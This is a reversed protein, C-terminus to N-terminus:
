SWSLRSCLLPLSAHARPCPRWRRLAKSMLMLRSSSHDAFDLLRHGIERAVVGDGNLAKIVRRTVRDLDEDLQRVPQASLPRVVARPRVATVTAVM